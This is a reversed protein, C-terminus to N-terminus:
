EESAESATLTLSELTALADAAVVTDALSSAWVVKKVGAAGMVAATLRDLPVDEGIQLPDIGTVTTPDTFLARIRQAAEALATDAHTGPKLTLVGEIALPVAQPGRAQWDDNIPPGAQVDDPKAGCAVAERVKGLLADTPIGAAGKVIVDVTGQGRPHQDLVKVAVTGTVSLAWSAYAYKTMGNNGMWRLVYREQLKELTEIDAGESTLWDATNSIADVGPITTVMETIQGASANSAAGYEEAEVPVTVENMGNQIVADETTVYRYILGAGDPETRVIKGKPIPVNGSTSVRAFRVGGKSKTAQKRPAEVQEAHWEMWEEDTATKPAAQVFVAALLQYLQYLGWCFIELLGRVVGKNLNLRRPLWGKAAYEEMVDEVHGFVMSRVDDLTKSLQPTPM